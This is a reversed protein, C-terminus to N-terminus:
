FEFTELITQDYGVVTQCLYGATDYTIQDPYQSQDPIGAVHCIEHAYTGGDAWDQALVIYTGDLTMGDYTGPYYIELVVYVDVESDVITSYASALEPYDEIWAWTGYDYDYDLPVTLGAASVEIDVSFDDNGAGDYDDQFRFNADDTWLEMYYEASGQHGTAGNFAWSFAASNTYPTPNGISATTAMLAVM